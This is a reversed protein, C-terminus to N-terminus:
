RCLSEEELVTIMNVEHVTYKEKRIACFDIMLHYQALRIEQINIVNTVHKMAKEDLIAFETEEMKERGKRIYPFFLGKVSVM